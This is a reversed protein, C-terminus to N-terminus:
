RKVTMKRQKRINRMEDGNKFPKQSRSNVKIGPHGYNFHTQSNIVM